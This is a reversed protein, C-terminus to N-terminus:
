EIFGRNSVNPAFGADAYRLGSSFYEFEKDIEFM